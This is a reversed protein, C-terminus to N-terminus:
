QASIRRLRQSRYPRYGRGQPSWRVLARGYLYAKRSELEDFFEKAEEAGIVQDLRGVGTVPLGDRDLLETRIAEPKSESGVNTFAVEANM